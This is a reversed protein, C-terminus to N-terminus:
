EGFYIKAEACSPFKRNAICEIIKSYNEKDRVNVKYALRDGFYVLWYYFEESRSNSLVITYAKSMSQGGLGGFGLATSSWVQTFMAEVIIDEDYSYVMKSIRQRQEETFKQYMTTDLTPNSFLGFGSYLAHAQAKRLSDISRCDM